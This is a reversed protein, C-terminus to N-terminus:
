ATFIYGDWPARKEFFAKTFYSDIANLAFRNEWDWSVPRHAKVITLAEAMEDRAKKKVQDKPSPLICEM